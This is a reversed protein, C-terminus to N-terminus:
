GLDLLEWGRGSYHHPVYDAGGSCLWTGGRLIAIGGFMGESGGVYGALARAKLATDPSAETQGAKTDFLGVRGDAMQVVFDVYFARLRGSAPDSYKIALYKRDNEGNKYWWKVSNGRRDLFDMFASENANGLAYMPRVVCKTCEKRRYERTYETLRPVGWGPIEIVEQGIRSAVDATYRKAAMNTVHAIHDRNRDDLVARQADPMGVGSAGFFGYLARKITMSSHKAAFGTEGALQAVFLDFVAQIEQEDLAMRVTGGTVVQRRDIHEIEADTLVDRTMEAAGRKIRAALGHRKAESMFIQVFRGDLRTKAHQRKIYVSPLSLGGYLSGDRRSEFRTIYDAAIDQAIEIKAMNTYVYAHDLADNDYHRAEPMRMIRGVTQISFTYDRWERFLVLISSRPCDWGITIAQKFILADVGSDHRAVDELNKKSESLYVALRGNKETIGRKALLATVEDAMDATGARRDPVQILVLPNVASGARAYGAKLEERKKLAADIIWGNTGGSPEELGHNIKVLRKIMGAEKVEDIDVSEVYDVDSVTPTASVDVSVDPAILDIVERALETGASHHSEDVVLVIKRGEGRTNRVVSSLNHGQENDRVYVNGKSRISEWNFFLVENEQIRRDQLEEFYACGIAGSDGYHAELKERSQAHLNHVSIWVFSLAHGGSGGLRRIVETMMVTKGSGTPSKLVCTKPARHGLMGLIRDALSQVHDEQYGRLDHM